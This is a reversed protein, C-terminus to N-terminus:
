MIGGVIIPAIIIIVNESSSSPCDPDNDCKDNCNGDGLMFMYCGSSKLCLLNDYGCLSSNCSQTCTPETLDTYSCGPSCTPCNEKPKISSLCFADILYDAWVFWNYGIYYNVFYTAAGTYNPSVNLIGLSTDFTGQHSSLVEDTCSQSYNGSCNTCLDLFYSIFTSVAESGNLSAYYNLSIVTSLLRGTGDSSNTFVCYTQDNNTLCTSPDIGPDKQSSTFFGLNLLSKSLSVTDDLAKLKLFFGQDIYYNSTLYYILVPNVTKGVRYQYSVLIEKSTYNVLQNGTSNNIIFGIISINYPGAPNLVQPQDYNINSIGVTAIGGQTQVSLMIDEFNCLAWIDYPIIAFSSSDLTNSVQCNNVEVFVLKGLTPYLSPNGYAVSLWVPVTQKLEDPSYIILNAVCSAMM